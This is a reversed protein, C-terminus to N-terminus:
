PAGVASSDYAAVSKSGLMRSSRSRRANRTSKKHERIERSISPRGPSRGSLQAWFARFRERQRRVFTDPHVIFLSKRWGKWVKALVMWFWRDHTTLEPRKQKRKYVAPQQRLAINELVLSRHPNGLLFVMRFLGLLLASVGSM